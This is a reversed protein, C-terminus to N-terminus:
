VRSSFCTCHFSFHYFYGVSEQTSYYLFLLHANFVIQARSM